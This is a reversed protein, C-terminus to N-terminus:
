AVPHDHHGLASHDGLARRVLDTRVLPHDVGVETRVVVDIETVELLDHELLPGLLAGLDFRVGALGQGLSQQVAFTTREGSPAAIASNCSVDDVGTTSTSATM